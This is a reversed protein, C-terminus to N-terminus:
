DTVCKGPLHGATSSFRSNSFRALCLSLKKRDLEYALVPNVKVKESM